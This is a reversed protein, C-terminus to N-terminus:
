IFGRRFTSVEIKIFSLVPISITATAFLSDIIPVYSYFVEDNVVLVKHSFSGPNSFRASLLESNKLFSTLYSPLSHKDM